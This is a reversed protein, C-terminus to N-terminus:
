RVRGGLCAQGHVRRVRAAVGASTLVGGLGRDRRWRSEDCGARDNGVLVERAVGHRPVLFPSQGVADSPYNKVLVEDSMDLCAYAVDRVSEGM